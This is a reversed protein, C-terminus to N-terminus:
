NILSSATHLVVGAVGPRNFILLGIVSSHLSILIVRGIDTQQHSRYDPKICATMVTGILLIAALLCNAVRDDMERYLWEGFM